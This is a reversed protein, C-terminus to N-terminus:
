ATQSDRPAVHLAVNAVTKGAIEMLHPKPDLSFLYKEIERIDETQYVPVTQM